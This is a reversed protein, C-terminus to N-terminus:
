KLNFFDNADAGIGISLTLPIKIEEGIERVKDLIEFKNEELSKLGEEKFVVFYKDDDYKKM